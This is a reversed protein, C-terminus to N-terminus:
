DCALAGAFWALFPELNAAWFEATHEGPPTAWDHAYDKAELVRHFDEALRYYYDQRGIRMQLRPREAEPMQRLLMGMYAESVPSGPISLAGIQGFTQWHIWGLRVAWGAGRSVGGIVRCTRTTAASFRQEAWPLLEDLLVRDFQSEVYPQLYYAERPLVVVAPPLAGREILDDMAAALGADLWQQESNSSGHLLYLTAYRGAGNRHCAPLYVQVPVKKHLVQSDLEYGALSGGPAGCGAATPTLTAAPTDTAAPPAATAAPPATVSVVM